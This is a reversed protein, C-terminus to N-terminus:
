FTWALAVVGGRDLPIFNMSLGQEAARIKKSQIIVETICVGTGVLAVIGVTGYTKYKQKLDDTGQEKWDNYVSNYKVLCYGGIGATAVASGLWINRLKKHKQVDQENGLGLKVVKMISDTTKTTNNGALLRVNYKGGSKFKHVPSELTSLNSAGSNLDGFKWSYSEANKSKNEFKVEFPTKTTLIKYDFDALPGRSKVAIVDVNLENINGKFDGPFDWGILKEMGPKLRNGWDGHLDSKQPEIIKGNHDIKLIVDFRQTTDPFALNYEIRLGKGDVSLDKQVNTAFNTDQGNLNNASIATLIFLTLFKSNNKM